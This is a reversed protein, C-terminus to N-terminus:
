RPEDLIASIAAGIADFAEHISTDHHKGPTSIAVDHPAGDRGFGVHVYLSGFSTEVRRTVTELRQNM